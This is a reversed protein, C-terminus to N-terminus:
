KLAGTSIRRDNDTSGVPSLTGARGRETKLTERKRQNEKDVSELVKRTLDVNSGQRTLGSWYQKIFNESPPCALTSSPLTKPISHGM